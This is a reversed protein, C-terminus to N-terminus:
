PWPPSPSNWYKTPAGNPPSATVSAIRAAPRSPRALPMSSITRPSSTPLPIQPG